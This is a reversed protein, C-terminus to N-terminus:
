RIIFNVKADNGNNDVVFLTHNGKAVALSMSHKGNTNGLYQNDLYWYVTSLANSHAVRCTIKQREGQIDTPIYIKANQLPYTIEINNEKHIGPCDKKHPPLTFWQRGRQRLVKNVSPPYCLVKKTKYNNLNWCLSCVQFKEDKTVTIKKHYMCLLLPKMSSPVEVKLTKECNETALYGTDKCITITKMTSSPKEFWASTSPLSNVIDFLIPASCSAGSLLRNGEGSFNGTWVGITWNTTVGIALGDRQGYSTGTKWAVPKSNQYMQWYYEAGPRKLKRLINLILYCSGDSLLKVEQKGNANVEELYSLKSFIGYNGLGRYLTVLDWLTSEAGGLVLPLGYLLPDRYLTTMGGKKLLTYFNEIGVKQLTRAAPVNLSRILADEMTVLGDFKKNANTPTYAGYFTPIDKLLTKPLLLGKDIAYGYLFPKLVSGTSRKASVGDVQGSYKNDFFNTSGLYVRVKGTKTEAVLVSLNNIGNGRLYNSHVKVIDKCM